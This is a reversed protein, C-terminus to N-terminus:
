RVAVIFLRPFRLLVKGDFRPKYAAAIKEMYVASIKACLTLRRCIFAAAGLGQVMRRHRAAGGDRSQLYHALYRDACVGALLDYYIEPAPLDGRAVALKLTSNDAPPRKSGSRAAARAVARAHQGADAGCCGAQHCLKSCGGCCRRIIRFGNSRLANAFLLDARPDGPWSAIDAELFACQPSRERAKRLMDPSSDLGDEAHPFREVLLETLQRAQGLDVALRPNQLLM